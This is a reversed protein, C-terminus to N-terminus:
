RRSSAHWRPTPGSRATPAEHRRRGAGPHGIGPDLRYPGAPAVVVRRHGGTGRAIRGLGPVQLRTSVSRTSSRRAAFEAIVEVVVAVAFASWVLWCVVGVARLVTSDTIPRQLGDVVQHWPPLKTPLGQGLAALALPVGILAGLLGIVSAVGPLVSRRGRRM